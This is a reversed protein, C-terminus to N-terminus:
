PAGRAGATTRELRRSRMKGSKHKKHTAALGREGVGWVGCGVVWETRSPPPPPDSIRGAHPHARASRFGVGSWVITM